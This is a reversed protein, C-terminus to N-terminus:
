PSVGLNPGTSREDFTMAGSEVGDGSGGGRDRGGGGGGGVVWGVLWGLWVRGVMWFWALVDSDVIHHRRRARPIAGFNVGGDVPLRTPGDSIGHNVSDSLNQCVVTCMGMPVPLRWVAPGEAVSARDLPKFDHDQSGWTGRVM